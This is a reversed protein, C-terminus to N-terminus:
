KTKFRNYLYDIPHIIENTIKDIDGNIMKIRIHNLYGVGFMKIERQFLHEPLYMLCLEFWNTDHELLLSISLHPWINKIPHNTAYALMEHLRQKREVTLTKM